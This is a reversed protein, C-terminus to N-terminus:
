QEKGTGEHLMKKLDRLEDPEIGVIWPEGLLCLRRYGMSRSFVELPPAAFGIRGLWWEGFAMYLRGLSCASKESQKCREIIFSYITNYTVYPVTQDDELNLSMLPLDRGWSRDTPTSAPKGALVEVGQGLLERFLRDILQWREAEDLSPKAIVQALLKAGERIESELLNRQQDTVSYSGTKRISPLVDHTVWRRFPKAHPKNSRIILTYLGSESIVSMEQEGGLTQMKRLGKEDDDLRRIQETGIELIDCADKAVFWPEEDILMTRVVNDEFYFPTIEPM